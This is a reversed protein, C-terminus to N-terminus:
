KILGPKKYYKFVVKGLIEDKEVYKDVWYRSDQSDNRNDGMMFYSDEPVEYPGFEGIPKERIYSDRICM